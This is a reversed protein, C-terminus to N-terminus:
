RKLIHVALIVAVPLPDDVQLQFITGDRVGRPLHLALPIRVSRVGDGDCAACIWFSGGSGHCEKCRAQFPIELPLIGGAAAEAPSLLIEGSATDPGETWATDHYSVAVPVASSAPRRDMDLVRDYRARSEPNSLTEYATQLARFQESTDGGVDPHCTRALRKYARRIREPTADRPVGLLGYYDRNGM